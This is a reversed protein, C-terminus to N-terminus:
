ETLANFSIFPINTSSTWSGSTASGGVVGVVIASNNGCIVQDPGADATAIPNITIIMTDSVSNCPGVPDSSTLILRVTGAAKDTASLIYNTILSSANTFTGTGLTSWTGSSVSGSVSGILSVNNSSACVTKDIGANALPLQNITLIMSDKANQCLNTLDFNTITLKVSGSIKDTISPFYFPTLTNGNTFVGTGSTTWNLTGSTAATTANLVISNNSCITQDLGANLMVVPNFTLLMTDRASVCPGIPDNTSLVLKVFGASKDLASPTYIANLLTSNNFSGTGITGWNSNTASGGISGSLNISNTLICTNQDIGANASPAKFIRVTKQDSAALCSGVPDNSTLTLIISGLDSASPTYVGNLNNPNSFTGSGSTTWTGFPAAPGLVGALNVVDNACISDKVVGAIATPKPNIKLDTGNNTGTISPSSGVVRIRYGLGLVTSEPITALITGNTVSTLQGIPVSSSFSGFEDSLQATFVNSGGFTGIITYNVVINVGGCYETILIPSTTITQAKSAYNFFCLISIVAFQYILKIYKNTKM